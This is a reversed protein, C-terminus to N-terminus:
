DLNNKQQQFELINRDMTILFVHDGYLEISGVVTASENVFISSARLLSSTVKDSKIEDGDVVHINSTIIGKSIVSEATSINSISSITESVKISRAQMQDCAVTGNKTLFGETSQVMGEEIKVTGNSVMSVDSVKINKTELEDHVHINNTVIRGSVYLSDQLTVNGNKVMLSM